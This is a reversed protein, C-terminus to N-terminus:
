FERVHGQDGKGRVCVQDDFHGVEVADLRHGFDHAVPEGVVGRGEVEYAVADFGVHVVQAAHAHGYQAGHHEEEGVAGGGVLAPV